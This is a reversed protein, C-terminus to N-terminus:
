RSPCITSCKEHCFKSWEAINDCVLLVAGFVACLTFIWLAKLNDDNSILPKFLFIAGGVCGSILLIGGTLRSTCGSQESTDDDDITKYYNVNFGSELLDTKNGIISGAFIGKVPGHNDSDNVSREAQLV